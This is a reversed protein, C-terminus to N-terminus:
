LLSVITAELAEADYERAVLRVIGDRDVVIDLPYPNAADFSSEFQTYTFTLTEIGGPYTPGLTDFWSAVESPFAVEGPASDIAIIKLGQDAYEQWLATEIDPLELSCVPCFTAFYVVLTVSGLADRTYSWDTGDMLTVLTEPFPDGAGLEVANAIAFAQRVPQAPDDSAIHVITSEETAVGDIGPGATFTVTLVADGGVPVLVDTPSVVWGPDDAWADWVTLPATGGNHVPIEFTATGGPPVDGPIVIRAVTEPLDIYPATADPHVAYVNPAWWNGAYLADGRGAVALIRDTVELDDPAAADGVESTFTRRAAGLLAPAAPDAVDYVRVDEWAAVYLRGDDHDVAIASGGTDLFTRLSLAAPDTVDVVVVGGSEAAVYATTGDVRLDRAHGDFVMRDLEIVAAPDSVDLAVLGGIGDAVLAVTGTVVVDWANELGAYRGIETFRDKVPDYTFAALGRQHETVWIVGDEVDLGEFSVLTEGESDKCDKDHGGDEDLLDGCHQDLEVVDVSAIADPDDIEGDADADAAANVLNLRWGSLFGIGDGVGGRNTTFVLDRDDDDAALHTCGPKWDGGTKTHVLGEALAVLARPDSADFVGFDRSCQLLLPPTANSALPDPDTDPRADLLLLDAVHMQKPGDALTQVHELVVPHVGPELETDAPPAVATPGPRGPSPTTTPGPDAGPASPAAPEDAPGPAVPRACAGALLLVALLARPM